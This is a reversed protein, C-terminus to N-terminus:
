LDKTLFNFKSFLVISEADCWYNFVRHSNKDPRGKALNLIRQILGNQRLKSDPNVFFYRFM